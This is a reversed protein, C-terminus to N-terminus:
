GRSSSKSSYRRPPRHSLSCLVEWPILGVAKAVESASIEDNVQSGLLVVEDGLEMEDDVEVVLAGM